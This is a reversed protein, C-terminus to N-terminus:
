KWGIQLRQGVHLRNGAGGAVIAYQGFMIGRLEKSWRYSKLTALPEAGSVEGTVQDTTTIKCRTCPRVMQLRLPGHVLKQIRDEEYPQLGDIVVNPRFRSMPLPTQLRTNLDDLSAQSIVLVPFGDSFEVSSDTRGQWFEPRIPRSIQPDFRVLRVPRELFRSLWEAAQQGADHASIRDYVVSVEAAAGEVEPLLHLPTMGPATLSLAQGSLQPVILAMRPLERQTLYRGTESVVMWHRDSQLGTLQLAAEQLPIGRCSKVPYTNLTTITAFAMTDKM